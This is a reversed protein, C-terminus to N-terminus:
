QQTVDFRYRGNKPVLNMTVEAPLGLFKAEDLQGSGRGQPDLRGDPQILLTLEAAGRLKGELEKPIGWEAPLRSIDVDKADLKVGLVSTPKAFDYVGAVAVTGDALSVKGDTVQVKGDGIRILGQVQTVTVDAQPVTLSAGHPRLEVLYALDAGPKFTFKVLAATEGSASLNAWVEPPVYPISRLQPDSLVARDSTLEVYGDAPDAALRGAIRWKGWKPDDVSGTLAYGDGDRVLKGEVGALEFEPRGTQAIRIRTTALTITPLNVAGEGGGKPKPLSSLIKGAEDLRLRLEVDKTTVKTPSVSGTLLGGLTVDTELSGIRLLDSPSEASADPIRIVASTSSIGPNFEEVEVPMGLTESLQSAASQRAYSSSLVGKLGIWAVVLLAILLGLVRLGIKWSRKV